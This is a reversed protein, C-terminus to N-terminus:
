WRSREVAGGRMPCIRGFVTNTSLVISLIRDKIPSEVYPTMFLEDTKPLRACENFFAVPELLPATGRPAVFHPSGMLSGFLRVCCRKM